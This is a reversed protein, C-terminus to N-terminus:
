RPSKREVRTAAGLDISNEFPQPLLFFLYRSKSRIRSGSRKLENFRLRVSALNDTVRWADGFYQDRLPLGLEGRVVNLLEECPGLEDKGSADVYGLGHLLEHLLTFGEDFSARVDAPAEMELFDEFDLRLRWLETRRRQQVEHIQEREAQGFVVSASGSHDEILFNTGSCMVRTLMRRAESSGFSAKTSEGLCLAGDLAFQLGSCGTIRRLSRVLRLEHERGLAHNAVREARVGATLQSEAIRAGALGTGNFAFSSVFVLVGCVKKRNM